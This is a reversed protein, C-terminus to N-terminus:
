QPSKWTRLSFFLMMNTSHTSTELRALYQHSSALRDVKNNTKKIKKTCPLESEQSAIYKFCASHWPLQQVIQSCQRGGHGVSQSQTCYAGPVQLDCSPCTAAVEPGVAVRTRHNVTVLQKCAIAAEVPCFGDFGWDKKCQVHQSSESTEGCPTVGSSAMWAAKLAQSSSPVSSQHIKGAFYAFKAKSEGPSSPLDLWTATPIGKALNSLSSSGYVKGAKCLQLSVNTMMLSPLCPRHQNSMALSSRLEPLCHLIYLLRYDYSIVQLWTFSPKQQYRCLTFLRLCFHQIRNFRSLTSLVSSSPAIWQWSHWLASATQPLLIGQAAVEPLFKWSCPVQIALRYSDCPWLM